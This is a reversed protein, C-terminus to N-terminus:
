PISLSVTNSPRSVNGAEDSARLAFYYKTGGVLGSVLLSEPMGASQPAPANIPDTRTWNSLTIDITSRRLDYASARGDTDDDGPATWHLMASASSAQRVRLDLIRSPPTVDSTAGPNDDGCGAVACVLVLGVGGIGVKRAHLRM